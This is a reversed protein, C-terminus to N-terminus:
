LRVKVILLPTTHNDIGLALSTNSWVRYSVAVFVGTDQVYSPNTLFGLGVDAKKWFFVDAGAGLLGGHLSFAGALFPDLETGWQPSKVIVQGNNKIEISSPRDPLTTAKTGERTVIVFIHKHPDIVIKEKVDSALVTSVTALDHKKQCGRGFFFACLAALVVGLISERLTPFRLNLM